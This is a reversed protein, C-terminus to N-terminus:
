TIEKFSYLLSTFITLLVTSCHWAAIIYVVSMRIVTKSRGCLWFIFESQSQRYSLLFVVTITLIQSVLCPFWTFISWLNKSSIIQVHNTKHVWKRELFICEPSSSMVWRIIIVEEGSNSHIHPGNLIIYNMIQIKNSNKLREVVYIFYLHSYYIFLYIVSM